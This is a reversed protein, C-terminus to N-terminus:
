GATIGARTVEEAVCRDKAGRLARCDLANPSIFNRRLRSEREYAIDNGAAKGSYMWAPRVSGVGNQSM